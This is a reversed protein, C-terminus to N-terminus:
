HYMVIRKEEASESAREKQFVLCSQFIIKNSKKKKQSFKKTLSM